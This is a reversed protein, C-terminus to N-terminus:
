ECQIQAIAMVYQHDDTQSSHTVYFENRVFQDLFNQATIQWSRWLLITDGKELTIIREGKEFEFKLNLAVKFRARTYHQNISKEFGMEVDYLSDDINLMDFVLRHIPALSLKGPKVHYDFWQPRMEETELKDTYVLIDDANMSEHITWFASGPNRFNYPTGGLFLVVNRTDKAEKTPYDQVLIDGFREYTIDLEHEEYAVEDNFWEKINQKVIQLMESSIDIAIYRALKKQKLLHGLFDKVPLANGPGIDIVNIHKYKSLMQDLYSQNDSLLKVTRNLLNPAPEGALRQTYVDWENAGGDFYNYQRPIEHHAELSRVIEYIQKETFTKYFAPTPSITKLALTNRYKRNARVLNEMIPLNSPLNAVYLRGGEKHLTLDLKGGKAMRVWNRVTAESIRYKEALEVHTFYTM